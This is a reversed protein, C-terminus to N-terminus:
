WRESLGSCCQRYGCRNLDNHQRQSTGGGPLNLEYTASIAAEVDARRPPSWSVKRYKITYVVSRVSRLLTRLSALLRKRDVNDHPAPTGADDHYAPHVLSSLAAVDRRVLARRYAEIAAVVERNNKTDPIRTGPISRTSSRLGSIAPRARAGEIPLLRARIQQDLRYCERAAAPPHVLHHADSFGV